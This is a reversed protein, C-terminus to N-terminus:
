TPNLILEGGKSPMRMITIPKGANIARTKAVALTLCLM